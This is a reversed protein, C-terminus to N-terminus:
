EKIGSINDSLLSEVTNILDDKFKMMGTGTNKYLIVRRHAIDFPFKGNYDNAFSGEECITIVEKGLTHCIGLEYFVNPNKNTIDAILFKSKCMYTWIDEMIENVTFLDNAKLVQISFRENLTPSIIQEFIDIRDQDFPLLAFCLNKDISINRSKFIPEIVLSNRRRLVQANYYNIQKDIEGLLPQPVEISSSTSAHYEELFPGSEKILQCNFHLYATIKVDLEEEAIEKLDQEITEKQLTSNTSIITNSSIFAKDTTIGLCINDEEDKGTIVNMYKNFECEKRTILGKAIYNRKIFFTIIDLLSIYQNLSIGYAEGSEFYSSFKINNNLLM